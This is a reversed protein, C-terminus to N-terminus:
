IAIQVEKAEVKCDLKQGDVTVSMSNEDLSAFETFWVQGVVM